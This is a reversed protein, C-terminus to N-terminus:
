GVRVVQAFSFVSDGRVDQNVGTNQRAFFEIYDSSGNMNLLISVMGSTQVGTGGAFLESRAVESGNKYIATDIASGVVSAAWTVIHSALYNGPILPTFRFNSSSDYFGHTDIVTNNYQVKTFVGSVLGTQNVGNRNVQCSPRSHFSTAQWNGGSCTLWVVDGSPGLTYSNQGNTGDPVRIVEAGNAVVLVIGTIGDKRVGITFGNGAVASAPLTITTTGVSSASILSGSDALTVTYNASKSMVRRTNGLYDQAHGKYRSVFNLSM